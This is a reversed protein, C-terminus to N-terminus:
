RVFLQQLQNCSYVVEDALSELITNSHDIRVTKMGISQAGKIDKEEHDGVFISEEATVGLNQLARQFLRPDPKKMGEIESIHVTDFFNDLQLHKINQRQFDGVGNTILGLKYEQKTLSQLLRHTDPFAVCDQAFGKVYDSILPIWSNLPLKFEGEMQQYVQDKWVYGNQDLHLFRERFQKYNTTKLISHFREYQNPLFAELSSSRDLLTGDLDFLIAKTLM